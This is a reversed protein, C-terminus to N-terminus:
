SMEVDEEDDDEVLKLRLGAGQGNAHAVVQDWYHEVNKAKFIKRAQENSEVTQFVFHKFLRKVALGQWVAQCTNEPNFQPTDREEEDDDNIDDDELGTWKIRHLM